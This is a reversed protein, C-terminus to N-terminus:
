KGDTILLTLNFTMDETLLLCNDGDKALESNIFAFLIIQM